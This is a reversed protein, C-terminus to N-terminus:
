RQRRFCASPGQAVASPNRLPMALRMSGCHLFSQVVTGIIRLKPNTVLAKLYQKILSAPEAVLPDSLWAWQLRYATCGCRAFHRIGAAALM